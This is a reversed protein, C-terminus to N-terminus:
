EHDSEVRNPTPSRHARYLERFSREPIEPLARERTWPATLRELWSSPMQRGLRRGLSGMFAYFRPHLFAHGAMRFAWRRPTGTHGTIRQDSRLTLLQHHLPIKVPCVNSCSGCLSCAHPLSHHAEPSRNPELVSGIPGPITSGYSYGGSRRYVPCTNLCAGCRICALAARYAPQGLLRSRGNDVGVIHM